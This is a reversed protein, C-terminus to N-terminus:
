QCSKVTSRSGSRETSSAIRRAFYSSSPESDIRQEHWAAMQPEQPTRMLPLDFSAQLV